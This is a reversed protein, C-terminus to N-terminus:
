HPGGSPWREGGNGAMAVPAVGEVRDGAARDTLEPEPGSATITSGWATRPLGATGDNAEPDRRGLVPWAPGPAVPEPKGTKGPMDAPDPKSALRVGM